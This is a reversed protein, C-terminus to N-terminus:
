ANKRFISAMKVSVNKSIDTIRLEERIDENAKHDTMRYGAVGTFFRMETTETRRKHQKTLAWSQFGYQRLERSTKSLGLLFNIKCLIITYQNFLVHGRINTTVFHM